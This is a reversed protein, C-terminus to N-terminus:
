LKQVSLTGGDPMADPANQVLNQVVIDFNYLSLSPMEPDLDLNLDVNDPM